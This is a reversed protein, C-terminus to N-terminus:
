YMEQETHLVNQNELLEVQSFFIFLIILNLDKLFKEDLNNKLTEEFNIFNKLNEKEKKNYNYAIVKKISPIQKLIEDVKDLINIKKGNYYYYDCTILVKPEIQKFRDCCRSSWFRTFLFVM